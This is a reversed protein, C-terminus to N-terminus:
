FEGLRNGLRVHARWSTTCQPAAGGEGGIAWPGDRCGVDVLSLTHLAAICYQGAARISGSETMGLGAGGDGGALLRCGAGSGAADAREREDGDGDAAKSGGGGVTVGAVVVLCDTERPTSDVSHAAFPGGSHERGTTMAWAGADSVCSGGESRAALVLETGLAVVVSVLVSGGVCDAARRASLAGAKWDCARDSVLDFGAFDVELRVM